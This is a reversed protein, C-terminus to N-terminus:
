HLHSPPLHIVGSPASSATEQGVWSMLAQRPVRILRGLRIYPIQHQRVLEYCTNRGVRLVGAAEEVTLLAPLARDRLQGRTVDEGEPVDRVTRKM